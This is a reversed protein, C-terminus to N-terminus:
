LLLPLAAVAKLIARGGESELAHLEDTTIVDASLRNACVIAATFARISGNPKSCAALHLLHFSEM